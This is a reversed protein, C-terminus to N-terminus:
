YYYYYYYYYYLTNREAWAQTGLPFMKMKPRPNNKFLAIYSDASPVYM